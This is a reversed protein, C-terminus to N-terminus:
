MSGPRDYTVATVPDGTILAADRSLRRLCLAEGCVSVTGEKTRLRLCNGSLEVVGQQGEVLASSQHILTVRSGGTFADEPLDASLVATHLRGGKRM